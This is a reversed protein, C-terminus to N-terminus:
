LLVEPEVDQNILYAGVMALAMTVVSLLATVVISNELTSFIIEFGALTTLLGLTMRFPNATIGLHLLGMGLLSLAGYIVPPSVEIFWSQVLLSAQSISLLVLLSAFLRFLRGGPLNSAEMAPLDDRKGVLTFGLVATAMVGTVTRTAAMVVPWQAEVLFYMGVYQLGLYALSWRWDRSLVLGLAAVILLIASFWLIFESM